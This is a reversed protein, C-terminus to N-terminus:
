LPRATEQQQGATRLLELFANIIRPDFQSGSCRELEALAEHESMAGRYSRDSRMAHYADCVAIVRAALPIREGALRDPYGMGDYREHTSRIIAAVGRGSPASAIIREGILTHREIFAREQADLSTKKELIADPIAAKGIDHLEAAAVLDRLQEDSLGLQRGLRLALEAVQKVHSGLEPDRECLLGLLVDRWEPNSPQYLLMKQAYLRQDAVRLAENAERVEAGLLAEGFSAGITFREGRELLASALEVALSSPDRDVNLLACFEDGGLRYASGYPQAAQQLSRGLRALLVDGAPHGFTDNYRKFGNLDFLLLLKPQALTAQQAATQLDRLLARRNGLGTLADRNALANSVAILRVNENSTLMLRVLVTLLTAIALWTSLRGESDISGYALVGIATLGFLAPAAVIVRPSSEGPPEAREPQWAAYALVLASALWLADLPTDVNYTGHAEQYLYVGDAIAMILFGFAITSFPRGVRWGSLALMAVLVGVLLMDALPYGVDLLTKVGSHHTAASVPGLLTAAGLSGIALMGILGDLWMSARFQSLRRRGLLVIAAYAALYLCVYLLQQAAPAFSEGVSSLIEGGTDCALGLGLILWPLRSSRVIAGRALCIAACGAMTADYLWTEFVPNASGGGLGVGTHALDLLVM